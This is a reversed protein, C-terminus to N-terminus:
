YNYPCSGAIVTGYPIWGDGCNVVGVGVDGEGGGDPVVVVYHCGNEYWECYVEDAADAVRPQFLVPFLAIVLFVSKTRMPRQTQTLHAPSYLM